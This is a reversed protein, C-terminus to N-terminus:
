RGGRRDLSSLFGQVRRLEASTCEELAARGMRRLYGSIRVQASGGMIREARAIISRIVPSGSYSKAGMAPFGHDVLAKNLADIVASCKEVSDLKTASDVGATSLLVTVYFEDDLGLTKRQLQILGNMKKWVMKDM